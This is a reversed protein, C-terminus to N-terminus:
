QPRGEELAPRMKISPGREPMADSAFGGTIKGNTWVVAHGDCRQGDRGQMEPWECGLSKRM